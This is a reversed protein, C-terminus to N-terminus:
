EGFLDFLRRIGTVECTDKSADLHRALEPVAERWSDGFAQDSSACFAFFDRLESTTDAAAMFALTSRISGTLAGLEPEHAADLRDMVAQLRQRALRKASAPLTQISLYGPYLLPVLQPAKQIRAFGATRLYEFLESITLVNYIQVTTTVAAWKVNWEDFRQDLMHLNRDIDSWRSPRRIYDNLLGYADVSCLISVGRFHRWLSTVKEPLVTMNTNYSLQIEAARGSGICLELAEVMEPVILPEGGAFHLSELSPLHQNLLWELSDKKVWNNRSLTKLQGKPLRYAKPQVQNFHPEWLRSAVPGCMRCTLNCVNGLRIDAYHVVPSELTGDASTRQLLSAGRGREHVDNLQQRISTGASREAQQCRECAVPWEGRLMQARANKVTPSNLLQEDTLYQSIHLREGLANLLQNGEGVGVCCLQHFGQEDTMRHLWPIVCFTTEPM